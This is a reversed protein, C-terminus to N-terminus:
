AKPLHQERQAQDKTDRTDGPNSGARSQVCPALQWSQPVDGRPAAGQATGDGSDGNLVTHCGQAKGPPLTLGFCRRLLQALVHAESVLPTKIQQGLLRCPFLWPLSREMRRRTRTCTLVPLVSQYKQLLGGSGVQRSWPGTSLSTTAKEVLMHSQEWRRPTLLHCLDWPIQACPPSIPPGMGGLHQDKPLLCHSLCLSWGWWWSSIGQSGVPHHHGSADNRGLVQLARSSGTPPLISCSHSPVHRATVWGQTGSFTLLHNLKVVQLARPSTSVALLAGPGTIKQGQCRSKCLLTNPSKM